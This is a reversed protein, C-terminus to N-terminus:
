TNEKARRFEVRSFFKKQPFLRPSVLHLTKRTYGFARWLLAQRDLTERPDKKFRALLMLPLNILLAQGIRGMCSLITKLAGLRKWDIYAFSCGWQLSYWKVHKYSIREPPILHHGTAEPAWGTTLGAKVARLLFDRDCGGTLM